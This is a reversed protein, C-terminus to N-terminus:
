HCYFLSKSWFLVAVTDRTSVPQLTHQRDSAGPESFGSVASVDLTTTSSIFRLWRRARCFSSIMEIITCPPRPEALVSVYHREELFCISLFGYILHPCSPSSACRLLLNSNFSPHPPPPVSPLPENCRALGQNAAQKPPRRGIQM